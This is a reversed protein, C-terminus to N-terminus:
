MRLVIVILVPTHENHEPSTLKHLPTTIKDLQIGGAQFKNWAVETPLKTMQQQELGRVRFNTQLSVALKDTKM